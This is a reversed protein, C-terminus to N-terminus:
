GHYKFLAKWSEREMRKGQKVYIKISQKSKMIKKM